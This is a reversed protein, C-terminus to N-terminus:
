AAVGPSPWDSEAARPEWRLSANELSTRALREDLLRVIFSQFLGCDVPEAAQAAAFDQKALRYFVSVEGM